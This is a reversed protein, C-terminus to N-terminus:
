KKMVPLDAQPIFFATFILRFFFIMLFNFRHSLFDWVAKQSQDTEWSPDRGRGPPRRGAEEGEEPEGM